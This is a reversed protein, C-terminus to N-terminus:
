KFDIGTTKQIWGTFYGVALLILLIILIIFFISWGSSKSRHKVTSSGIKETVSAASAKIVKGAYANSFAEVEHQSNVVQEAVFFEKNDIIEFAQITIPFEKPHLVM